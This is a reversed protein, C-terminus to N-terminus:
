HGLEGLSETNTLKLILTTLTRSYDTSMFQNSEQNTNFTALKLGTGPKLGAHRYAIQKGKNCNLEWWNNCQTVKLRSEPIAYQDQPSATILLSRASVTHQHNLSRNVVVTANGFYRASWPWLTLRAISCNTWSLTVKLLIELLQLVNLQFHTCTMRFIGFFETGYSLTM